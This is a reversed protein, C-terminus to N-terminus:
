KKLEKKYTNLFGKTMKQVKNKMFPTWGLLYGKWGLAQQTWKWFDFYDTHKIIKGESFEFQAAVRNIVNRGTQAFVYEAVWNAAGKKESTEITNFSIKLGSNRSLLMQWMAKADDGYLKGFAPDEFCIDEHYCSIMGKVDRNAFSTYFKEILEKNEM